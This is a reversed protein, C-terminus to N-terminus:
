LIESKPALQFDTMAKLSKGYRSGIAEYVTYVLSSLNFFSHEDFGSTRVFYNNSDVYEILTEKQEESDIHEVIIQVDLEQLLNKFEKEIFYLESNLQTIEEETWRPKSYLTNSFNQFKTNVEEISQLCKAAQFYTNYFEILEKEKKVTKASQYNYIFAAKDLETVFLEDDEVEKKLSEIIKVADKRKHKKGDFEFYKIGNQKITIQKLIELDLKNSELRRIRDVNGRSYLEEFNLSQDREIFDEPDFKSLYRNDYFGNYAEDLKYKNLEAQAFDQYENLNLPEFKMNPFGIQYLNKTMEIRLQQPNSFISWASDSNVEAVINAKKINSEREKLTPHSAWQDKINLRSKVINNKLDEDTIKLIDNDVSIKNSKALIATTSTHNVYIDESAKERSALSNLYQTTYDYAFSSFEIKRLANKFSDNGSVSVAVLDAHYEMERSLKLYSVNILNYAVKMLDRVREVIWFTIGAFFGFIGGTQAWGSLVNDWNDYEYVLNYIVRNVTYIYSGIKMSRQSFHGFEHALVSKFESVNLSNVLGLGIELNKRVPFFLSWFSSNYFVMANVDPSLFIKKPFRTQTDINLQKIFAFLNPHEHEKIEIRYPNEDKTRSFIFKFLFVFVMVGLAIMGGGAALTIFSPRVTILAIGAWGAALMIAASIAILLLYFLFFLIITFIVGSVSRRFESSPNVFDYNSLVPSKPYLKSNM